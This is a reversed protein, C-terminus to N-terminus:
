KDFLKKCTVNEEYNYNTDIEEAKIQNLLSTVSMTLHSYNNYNYCNYYIKYNNYNGLQEPTINNHEM